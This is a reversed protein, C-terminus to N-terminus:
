LSRDTQQTISEVRHEHLVLCTLASLSINLYQQKQKENQKTKQSNNFDVANVWTGYSEKLSNDKTYLPVVKFESKLFYEVRICFLEDEFMMM